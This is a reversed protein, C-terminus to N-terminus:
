RRAQGHPGHRESPGRGRRRGANPACRGRAGPRVPRDHVPQGVVPDHRRLRRRPQAGATRERGRDDRGGDRRRRDVPRRAAVPGPARPPRARGKAVPGLRPRAPARMGGPDPPAAVNRPTPRTRLRGAFAPNSRRRARAAGPLRCLDPEGGRRRARADGPLRCLDPSAGAAPGARRRATSLPDSESGGGPGRTAQCDVLPDPRAERRSVRCPLPRVSRADRLGTPCRLSGAVVPPGPRTM